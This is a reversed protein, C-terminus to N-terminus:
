FEDVTYWGFGWTGKRLYLYIKQGKDVKEYFESGVDIDEPDEVPGWPKVSLNYSTSKGTSIYKDTVYTSYKDSDSRDFLCNTLVVTGFVYTFVFFALLLPVWRKVKFESTKRLIFVLLLLAIVATSAWLKTEFILHFDMMARLALGLSPFLLAKGVNPIGDGKDDDLEVYKNFKIYVYIAAIPILANLAAALMYPKPYVLLWLGFILGLNNLYKTAKLMGKYEPSRRVAGTIYEGTKSQRDTRGINLAEVTLGSISRFFDAAEGADQMRHIIFKENVGDHTIVVTGENEINGTWLSKRGNIKVNEIGQTGLRFNNKDRAFVEESMSECYDDEDESINYFQGGVKCFCIEGKAYLVKYVIDPLFFRPKILYIPRM